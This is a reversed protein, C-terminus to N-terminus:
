NVEEIVNLEELTLQMTKKNKSSIILDRIYEYSKVFSNDIILLNINRKKCTEVKKIDCKERQRNGFHEPGNIEIAIVPKPPFPWKYEFLVVDFEYNTESLYPDDKFITKFSVNRKVEFNKHVSCFHTITTFFMDEYKSGNSKGYELKITESPSVTIKGNNIAYQILSYLDDKKDSLKQIVDLDGLIILKEKARTIGVNILEYNNKIWNYTQKSTKNSLATSLIITDKEAGQLSHITGCNINNLGNEELLQTILKQQNVFPTIISVDKLNNRKIYNIIENAEEFVSNKEYSNTNKVNIFEISGDNNIYSLDLSSQYYRANSFNIIKRGCRYHYKILIYKSINDHNRMVDLISWKKYDYLESVNYKKMLKENVDDEITIVPKLQNPDGVLLLNDAKSIPILAHAANCQGAEDMVVLDFKHGSGGLKNSSINTSFIVPFVNNLLKMNKDDQCWKNFEIARTIDDDIFCIDILKSYKPEHLKNIYSLSKFYLFQQLERNKIIPKFLGILESNTIIPLENLEKKLNNVRTKLNDSVASSSNKLSDLLRESNSIYEEITTRKEQIELLKLLKSYELNNKDVIKNILNDKVVDNIKMEFLDKIKKTAIIVEEFKGLRLFPFIVDKGNYTFNLKEIIGDVPKNNASCVLITKGEYFGSLVVNLITQTKGTGPPGQVYTVPYKLANYIVRMQNINIRDDYIIISPEKRRVNNRKTINGFFSKLPIQLTDTLYENEINDYIHTLDVAMDRELLFMEPLQDIMERRSLNDKLLSVKKDYQDEFDSIFEDMNMNVYKFLSHRRGEIMFSKNFRLQPKITIWKKEPNFALNYYCLIYKKKDIEISLKSIALEYYKQDKNSIDYRYIKNLIFSTQEDTLACYKDKTLVKIDIGPILCHERQFPDSDLISCEKYYNLVNNNYKDYELWDAIELNDEISQILSDPVEYDSFNIVDASIIKDFSIRVNTLANYSKKDNFISVTLIRNKFNIHYIAAWFVTVEKEQQYRINLWKGEKIAKAISSGKNM